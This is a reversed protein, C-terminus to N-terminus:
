KRESPLRLSMEIAQQNQKSFAAKLKGLEEVFKASWRRSTGKLLFDICREIVFVAHVSVDLADEKTASLPLLEENKKRVEELKKLVRKEADATMRDGDIVLDIADFVLGQEWGEKRWNQNLQGLMNSISM